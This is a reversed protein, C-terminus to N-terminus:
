LQQSAPSFEDDLIALDTGPRKGQSIEEMRTRVINYRPQCTWERQTASKFTEGLLEINSNSREKYNNLLLYSLHESCSGYGHFSPRNCDRTTCVSTQAEPEQIPEIGEHRLFCMLRYHVHCGVCRGDLILKASSGRRRLLLRAADLDITVEKPCRDLIM